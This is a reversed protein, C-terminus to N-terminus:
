PNARPCILYNWEGHFHDRKLNIQSMEEDTVKRGTAYQPGIPLDGEVTEHQATL